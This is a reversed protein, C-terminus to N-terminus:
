SVFVVAFRGVKVLARDQHRSPRPTSKPSRARERGAGVAHRVKTTQRVKHDFASSVKKNVTVLIYQYKSNSSVKSISKLASPQKKKMSQM